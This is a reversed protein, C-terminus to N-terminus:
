HDSVTKFVHHHSPSSLPVYTQKLRKTSMRHKNSNPLAGPLMVVANKSKNFKKGDTFLNPPVPAQSGKTM